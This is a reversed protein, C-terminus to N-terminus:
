LLKSNKKLEIGSRLGLKFGELEARTLLKLSEDYLESYIENQKKNKINDSFVKSNKLYQIYLDTYEENKIYFHIDNCETLIQDILDM